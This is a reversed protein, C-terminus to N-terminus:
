HGSQATVQQQSSQAFNLMQLYISLIKTGYSPDTAWVGTLSEWTQCCGSRGVHSPVLSPLVPAPAGKPPPGAGAFIRLLQLQGIVGDEASPFSWGAPCTDCHGIGAYNNLGVADTSAFGGTELMAQAFAVDGRIGLIGGAQVYWSALQSIPASTRDLYGQANFWGTLQNADLTSPGMLTVGTTAAPLPGPIGALAATLSAHADDLQRRVTDVRNQDSALRSQDAVVAAVARAAKKQSATLNRHDQDVVKTLQRHHRAATAAATTDAHLDTIVYDGVLAVENQGFIAEQNQELGQLSTPELGSPGSAYLAVALSRLRGRDGALRTQAGSDATTARGLASEDTPLRRAAAAEADAADAAARQDGALRANDKNAASEANDVALQALV